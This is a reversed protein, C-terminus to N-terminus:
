CSERYRPRQCDQTRTVLTHSRGQLAGTDTGADYSYEIEIPLTSLRLVCRLPMPSIGRTTNGACARYAKPLRQHRLRSPKGSYFSKSSTGTTIRDIRRPVLACYRTEVFFSAYRKTWMQAAEHYGKLDEVYKQAIKPILPDQANPSALM